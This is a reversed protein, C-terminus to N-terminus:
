DSYKVGDSSLKALDSKMIEVIDWLLASHDKYIKDTVGSKFSIAPFQTASPLTMVPVADPIEM